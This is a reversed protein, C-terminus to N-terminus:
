SKMKGKLMKSAQTYGGGAGDVFHIHDDKLDRVYCSMVSDISIFLGYKIEGEKELQDLTAVLKLRKHEDGCILTNIKGM